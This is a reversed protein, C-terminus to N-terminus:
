VSQSDTSMGWELRKDDTNGYSRVDTGDLQVITAVGLEEIALEGNGVDDYGMKPFWGVDRNSGEVLEHRAVHRGCVGRILTTFERCSGPTGPRDPATAAM